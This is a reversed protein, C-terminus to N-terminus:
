SNENKTNSRYATIARPSSSHVARLLRPVVVAGDCDWGGESPPRPPKCCGVPVPTDKLLDKGIVPLRKLVSMRAILGGLVATQHRLHERTAIRCLAPVDFVAAQVTFLALMQHRHAAFRRQAKAAGFNMDVVPHALHALGKMRSDDIPMDDQRDRRHEARGKVLVCRDHQAREHATPRLAQIIE